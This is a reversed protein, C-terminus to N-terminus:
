QLRSSSYIENKKKKMSYIFSVRSSNFIGVSGRSRDALSSIDSEANISIDVLSEDITLPQHQQETTRKVTLLDKLSVFSPNLISTTRNTPSSGFAISNRPSLIRQFLNPKTPTEAETNSSAM